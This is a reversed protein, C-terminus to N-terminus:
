GAADYAKHLLDPFQILEWTSSPLTPTYTDTAPDYHWYQPAVIEDARKITTLLLTDDPLLEYYNRFENDPMPLPTLVDTEGNFWFATWPYETEVVVGNPRFYVTRLDMAEGNEHQFEAVLSQNPLDWIRFTLPNEWDNVAVLWHQDYSEVQFMPDGLPSYYLRRYGLYQPAEDATLLYFRNLSGVLASTDNIVTFSIHSINGTQLTFSDDDLPYVTVSCAPSCNRGVQILNDNVMDYHASNPPDSPRRLFDYTGDKYIIAGHLEGTDGDLIPAIWREGYQDPRPRYSGSEEESAAYIVREDGTELHREVISWPSEDDSEYTLYRLYDGNASFRYIFWNYTVNNPLVELRHTLSDYVLAPYYQNDVRRGNLVVYRDNQIVPRWNDTESVQILEAVTPTLHYFAEREDPFEFVVLASLDPFIVLPRVRILFESSFLVNIDGQPNYAVLEYTDYNYAYFWQTEVDQATSPSPLVGLGMSFVFILILGFRFRM